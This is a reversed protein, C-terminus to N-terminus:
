LQQLLLNVCLFFWSLSLLWIALDTRNMSKRFRLAHFFCSFIRNGIWTYALFQAVMNLLTRLAEETELEAPSRHCDAMLFFKSREKPPMEFIAAFIKETAEEIHQDKNENINQMARM